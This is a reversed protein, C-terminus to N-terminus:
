AKGRITKFGTNLLVGDQNFYNGSIAIRTKDSGSLISLSHNQIPAQRFAAGQWDTGAGTTDYKFGSAAPLTAAKGNPTNLFADKRLQWWESGNLLPISRIVNQVGYYSDYQIASKKSNGKKTTIIVVGNAGRSGYIATASADKLIEISEIDSPNISSMPNLKQDM